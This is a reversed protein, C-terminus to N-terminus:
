AKVANYWVPALMRFLVWDGSAGTATFSFEYRVLEKLGEAPSSTKSVATTFDLTPGGAVPDGSGTTETNKEFLQITFASTLNKDIVEASFVLNDGGRAMWPSFVKSNYNLLQAEFM